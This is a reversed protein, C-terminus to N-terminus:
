RGYQQIHRRKQVTGMEAMMITEHFCAPRALEAAPYEEGILRLGREGLAPKGRRIGGTLGINFLYSGYEQLAKFVPHGAPIQGIDLRRELGHLRGKASKGIFAARHRERHAVPDAGGSAVPNTVQQGAPPGIVDVHSVDPHAPGHRAQGLQAPARYLWMVRQQAPQCKVTIAEMLGVEVGLLVDPLLM